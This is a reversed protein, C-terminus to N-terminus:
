YLGGVGRRSVLAKLYPCSCLRAQIQHRADVVFRLAGEEGEVNGGGESGGFGGAGCRLGLGGPRRCRSDGGRRRVRRAALGGRRVQFFTITTMGALRLALRSRKLSLDTHKVIGHRRRVAERSEGRVPHRPPSAYLRMSPLLATHRSKDHGCTIGPDLGLVRAAM